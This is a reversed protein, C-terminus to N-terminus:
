NHLFFRSRFFFMTIWWLTDVLEGIKAEQRSQWIQGGVLDTRSTWNLSGGPLRRVCAAEAPLQKNRVSTECFAPARPCDRRFVFIISLNAPLSVQRVVILLFLLHGFCTFVNAALASLVSFSRLFVYKPNSFYSKCRAQSVLMLIYM